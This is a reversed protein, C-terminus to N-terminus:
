NSAFPNIEITSGGLEEAIIEAQRSASTNQYFVSRIKKKQGLDIIKQIRRPAAKKGDKEIVVMRLDYDQAFYGLVPHYIIFTKKELNALKSEIYSNLETLESKYLDAKKRYESKYEDDMKIFENQMIDIMEKIRIPSLWIHPDRNGNNLKRSKFKEHILKDLRIIKIDKNFSRVKSLIGAKEAPLGLSFYIDADSFNTMQRPSPAYNAPSNGPPIVTVVEVRDGAIKNVFTEQPSISVAVKLENEANVSETSIYFLSLLLILSFDFVHICCNNRIKNFM